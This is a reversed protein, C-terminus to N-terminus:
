TVRAADHGLGVVIRERMCGARTAQWIMEDAQLRFVVSWLYVSSVGQPGGTM